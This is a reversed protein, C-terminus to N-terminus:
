RPSAATKPPAIPGVAPTPAILYVERLLSLKAATSIEARLLGEGAIKELTVVVGVPVGEPFIGGLGSTQVIDGIKLQASPALQEIVLMQPKGSGSVVFREGGAHVQAPVRHRPDTLLILSAVNSGVAEIQGVLGNEDIAVSGISLGTSTGRNVVLRHQNSSFDLAMVRAFQGANLNPQAEIATVLRTVRGLSQQQSRLRFLEQQQSLYGNRLQANEAMLSQRDVFYGESQRSLRAPLESLQWIPSVWNLVTQRTQTLYHLRRDVVVLAVALACYVLLALTSDAGKNFFDARENM